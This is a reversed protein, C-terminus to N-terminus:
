LTAQPRAGRAVQELVRAAVPRQRYRDLHDLTFQGKGQPKANARAQLPPALGGSSSSPTAPAEASPLLRPSCGMMRCRAFIDNWSLSTDTDGTKNAASKSRQRQRNDPKAEPRPYRRGNATEQLPPVGQPGYLPMWRLQHLPPRTQSMPVGIVSNKAASHNAWGTSSSGAVAPHPM